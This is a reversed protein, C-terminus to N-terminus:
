TLDCCLIIIIILIIFNKEIVNLNNVAQADRNFQNETNNWAANLYMYVGFISYFKNEMGDTTGFVLGFIIFM